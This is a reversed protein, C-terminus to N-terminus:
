SQKLAAKFKTKDNNLVTLSSPLSNFIKNGAYFASQKFVLFSEQNNIIFSM